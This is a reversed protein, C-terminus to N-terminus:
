ELPSVAVVRSQRGGLNEVRIEIAWRDRRALLVRYEGSNNFGYAMGTEWGLARFADEYAKAIEEYDVGAYAERIVLNRLDMASLADDIDDLLGARLVELPAFEIGAVYPVPDSELSQYQPMAFGLASDGAYLVAFVNTGGDAASTLRVFFWEEGSRITVKRHEGWSSSFGFGMSAEYGQDTLQRKFVNAVEDL